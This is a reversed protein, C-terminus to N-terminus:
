PAPRPLPSVPPGSAASTSRPSLPRERGSVSTAMRASDTASEIPVVNEGVVANSKKLPRYRRSRHGGGMPPFLLNRQTGSEAANHSFRHDKMPQRTGATM